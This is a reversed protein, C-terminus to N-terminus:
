HAAGHRGQDEPCLDYTGGLDGSLSSVWGVGPEWEVVDGCKGCVEAPVFWKEGTQVDHVEFGTAGRYLDFAQIASQLEGWAGFISRVPLGNYPSPTETVVYVNVLRATSTTTTM